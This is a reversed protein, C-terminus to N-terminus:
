RGRAGARRERQYVWDSWTKAFTSPELILLGGAATVTYALDTRTENFRLVGGRDFLDGRHVRYMRDTQADVYFRDREVLREEPIETWETRRRVGDIRRQQVEDVTPPRPERDGGITSLFGRM